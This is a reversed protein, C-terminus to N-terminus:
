NRSMAISNSTKGKYQITYIQESNVSGDGCTVTMPILGRSDPVELRTVIYSSTKSIISIEGVDGIVGSFSSSSKGHFVTSKDKNYPDVDWRLLNTSTWTLNCVVTISVNSGPCISDLGSPRLYVSCASLHFLAIVCLFLFQVM